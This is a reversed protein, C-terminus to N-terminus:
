AWGGFDVVLSRSSRHFLGAVEMQGTKLALVSYVGRTRARGLIAISEIAAM